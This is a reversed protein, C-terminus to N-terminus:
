AKKIMGVTFWVIIGIILLMIGWLWKKDEFLPKTELAEKKDIAIPEGLQITTVNKPLVNPLTQIDYIPMIADTNGYALYYTASKDFRVFVEHQLGKVIVESIELPENDQHYITIKIKKAKESEFDFENKELSSLTGYFLNRYNIHYGKETKVSDIAYALTIPRYYDIADKVNLTVNSILAANKLNVTLTTEKTNKDFSSNTDKISFTNYIATTAEKQFIKADNLKPDEKTAITIKYYKYSSNPFNLTTFAYDTHENQISVMRYSDKITVWQSLNQSGELTISYDFNKTDFNLLIENIIHQNAIEYTYQYTNSTHSANLAKFSVLQNKFRNNEAKLIFPAEITDNATIGYVRIDALSSKAEAFINESLVLRHWQDTVGKIESKYSYDKLQASLYTSLLLFVLILNNTKQNM